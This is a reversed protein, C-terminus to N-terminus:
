DVKQLFFAFEQFIVYRFGFVLPLSFVVKVSILPLRPNKFYQEVLKEEGILGIVDEFNVRFFELLKEKSTGITDFRSEEM